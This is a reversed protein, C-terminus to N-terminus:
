GQLRGAHGAPEGVDQRDLPGFVGRRGRRAGVLREVTGNLEDAAAPQHCDGGFRDVAQGGIGEVALRDIPDKPGLPPRRGIRQDHM